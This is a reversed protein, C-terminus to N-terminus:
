TTDGTGVSTGQHLSSLLVWWCSSSCPTPFARLKSSVWTPLESSWACQVGLTHGTSVWLNVTLDPVVPRRWNAGKLEDGLIRMEMHVCLNFPCISVCYLTVPPELRERFRLLQKLM